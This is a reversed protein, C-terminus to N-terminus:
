DLYLYLASIKGKEVVAIDTGGAVPEDGPIGLTWSAIEIGHNTQSPRSLQFSFGPAWGSQLGTILTNINEYGIVPEASDSEYFCIDESYIKQMAQLRQEVDTNSWVLFLSDELLQAKNTM